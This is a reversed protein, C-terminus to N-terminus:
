AAEEEALRGKLQSKRVPHAEEILRKANDAQGWTNWLLAGRVRGEALYYVVGERFPEKWDAFTELRPDLEGVAEFGLDFLDSYFFPLRDYVTPQGAMALGAARGMADANSEHEVRIRKQLVPQQFSAVDGAAYVDPASTRLFADVEIGDGVALGAGRALEVNPSLGIGVVAADAEFEAGSENRVVIASGRQEVDVRGVTRVLVGQERYYDVLFSSLDHPFLRTGLGGEDVFLEIERGQMRLAAAIEMGIFGGGVVAFRLPESALERLRRYDDLTRYYLIRDGFEPLRRPSGGTAILLKGYGHAIGRDDVVSASRPDIGEIRRGLHLEAGINEVDRWIDSEPTGKWLAKSLPPRDYPPHPEAGFAGITGSPDAERIARMASEATMGAGIILYDYTPM